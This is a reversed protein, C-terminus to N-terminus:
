LDFSRRRHREHSATASSTAMMPPVTVPRTAAPLRVASTMPTGSPSAALCRAQSTVVVSKPTTGDHDDGGDFHDRDDHARDKGHVQERCAPRRRM